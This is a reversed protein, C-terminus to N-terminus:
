DAALVQRMGLDIVRDVGLPHHSIVLTTRVGRRSTLIEEVALASETDLHSTPEDLILIAPNSLLARAIAVRQREGGSLSLGREGVVTDYGLPLKAILPELRAMRGASRVDAPSATPMSFRINDAISGNLLVIDQPVYAIERRLCDLTYDALHIGDISIRGSSPELFRGLLNVLTTKGCGSEGAIGVCEGPEIRFSVHEFVSPNAGYRCTVDFFEVAGDVPRDVATPRQGSLETDLELVEGLRDAAVIADLIQQNVNALREVPGVVTALLSHFAMLQGVSLTGELVRRGGFWLLGLSSLGSVLSSLTSSRLALLQARYGADLMEAFRAEMRNQIRAEARSAKVIQIAGICEVACAEVEAAREMAARQHRKMPKNTFWVVAALGPTLALASAALKWDLWFMVGATVTVLFGDVIISLTAATIAVRIKIADNMRSLIEGTKRRLFFTLPLGLLHRHFGLGTEADIRLSLHALLYTRLAQFATRASLILLMGLTLLNLAPQRGLVFVFDVLAQIFFSSTLSLVTMLVAALLADLFLRRHPTLLRVLRSFSSSSNINSRLGASPALLLLVGTWNTKFDDLPIHRLGIAPDGITAHQPTFKYLVVFHNRSDERWHAIAPLTLNPLADTTARVARTTFGVAEAAALLGALNTGHRDTGAAERLVAISLRKGHFAAIMALAAPGCDTADHQLVIPYRM